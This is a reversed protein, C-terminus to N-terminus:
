PEAPIVKAIFAELDAQEEPCISHGMGRYTRFDVNQVGLEKLTDVTQKGWKYQVVEDADGHGHFIPLKVAHDTLMPIYRAGRVSKIKGSMGLFGSLAAVGALKRESTLGTLYSIVAGQSFGGVLVRDAPIGADVEASVLTNITRVSALMGADDEAIIGARPNFDQIDFWSTMRYGGNATVPQVPATPLIWRIHSFQRKAALSRALPYWGQASDGLGHAFIVSATHKGAAEVIIPNM